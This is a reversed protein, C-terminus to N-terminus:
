RTKANIGRVERIVATPQSRASPVALRPWAPPGCAPPVQPPQTAPVTRGTPVSPRGARHTRRWKRRGRGRRGRAEYTAARVAARRSADRLGSSGPGEDEAWRYSSSVLLRGRRRSTTPAPVPSAQIEPLLTSTCPPRGPGSSWRPPPCRISTWTTRATRRTMQTAASGSCRGPAPRTACWSASAPGAPSRSRITGPVLSLASVDLQGPAASPFLRAPEATFLYGHGWNNSAIGLLYEDGVLDAFVFNPGGSPSLLRHHRRRVPRAAWASAARSSSTM